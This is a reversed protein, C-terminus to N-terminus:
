LLHRHPKSSEIIQGDNFDTEVLLDGIRGARSWRETSPSVRCGAFVCLNFLLIITNPVYPVLIVEGGDAHIM